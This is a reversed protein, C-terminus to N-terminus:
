HLWQMLELGAILFMVMTMLWYQYQAIYYIPFIVVIEGGKAQLLSYVNLVSKGNHQTYEGYSGELFSAILGYSGQSSAQAECPM